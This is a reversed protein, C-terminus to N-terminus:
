FYYLILGLTIILIKPIEYVKLEKRFLSYRDRIYGLILEVLGLFMVACFGPSPQNDVNISLLLLFFGLLQIFTAILYSKM